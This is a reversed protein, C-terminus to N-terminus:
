VFFNPTNSQKSEVKSSDNTTTSKTNSESNIKNFEGMVKFMTKANKFIPGVQYFIPIAQNIVGLTKQTNTLLGGWNLKGKLPLISSATQYPSFSTYPQNFFM